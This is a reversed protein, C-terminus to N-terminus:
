IKVNALVRQRAQKEQTERELAQRQKEEDKLRDSRIMNEYIRNAIPIWEKFYRVVDPVQREQADIIARDGSFSFCEPGKNYLSHYSGINQLAEIWKSNVPRQFILTLIDRDWDVDVLRPPDAILPDDVETVPIVTNELESIRQRTVFENKRGILQQKVREISPLRDDPSRRLMEAVLDDLYEYNTEVSGITKFGTGYPVEGTFLENLMLGLAYIDARHDVEQNRGRQEPAAYQFNALRASDKTEVATCLDDEEFHAIGFDAILLNDKDKDYLINEPKIDRHIVGKLHAAEVGDLLKSFYPLVKDSSIGSNILPRLSGFYLPAVYFPSSKSFDKFVGHDIVTVINPHQNKLCFMLENKFRKVKEKTAKASDLLKIAWIVGSEDTAKYIKGSGGEGIIETATYTTFTTEFIIPKKLTM